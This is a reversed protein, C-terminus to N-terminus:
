GKKKKNTPKKKARGIAVNVYAASTGLLEAIRTQGFGAQSLEEIAEALPRERKVNLALLRVVEDLKAEVADVTQTKGAAAM